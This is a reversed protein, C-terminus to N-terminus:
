IAQRVSMQVRRIAPPHPGAPEGKSGYVLYQLLAFIGSGHSVQRGGAPVEGAFIDGM